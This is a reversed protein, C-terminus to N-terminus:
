GGRKAALLARYASPARRSSPWTSDRSPRPRTIAASGAASSPSARSGCCGRRDRGRGAAASSGDVGDEVVVVHGPVDAAVLPLGM